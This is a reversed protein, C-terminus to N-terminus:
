SDRSTVKIIEKEELGKLANYYSQKCMKTEKLVDRYYVGRVTADYEDSHRVLFYFLLFETSNLSHLKDINKCKYKM